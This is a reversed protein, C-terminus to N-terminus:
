FQNKMTKPDPGPPQRPIWYTAAGADRRLGLPDKRFLRMLLGMPTFMAYFLVAMLVPTVVKGLLLGLHFWLRNPWRLSVPWLWGLLAVGAAIGLVWWRPAAGWWVPWLALIALVVAWVVAFSRESPLPLDSKSGLDEHTSTRM